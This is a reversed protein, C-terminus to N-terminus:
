NQSFQNTTVRATNQLYPPQESKRVWEHFHFYYIKQLMKKKHTFTEFSVKFKKKIKGDITMLLHVQGTWWTPNSPLTGAAVQVSLQIMIKKTFDSSHRYIKPSKKRRQQRKRTGSLM